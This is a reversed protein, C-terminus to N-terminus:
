HDIKIAGSNIYKGFRSILTKEGGELTEVIFNLVGDKDVSGKKKIWGCEGDSKMCIVNEADGAVPINANHTVFILQREGKIKRINSVLHSSIYANDLQDEPQDIILPTNVGIETFGEMILTLLAVSRQGYSLSILPKFIKKSNKKFSNVNLEIDIKPILNSNSFLEDIFTTSQTKIIKNINKVIDEENINNKESNIAEFSNEKILKLNIQKVIKKYDRNYLYNLLNKFSIKRFSDIHDLTLSTIDLSKFEENLICKKLSQVYEIKEDFNFSIKIKGKLIENLEKINKEYVESIQNRTKKIAKILSYIENHCSNDNFYRSFKSKLLSYNRELEEQQKYYNIENINNNIIFNNFWKNLKLPEEGLSKIKQQEYTEIKTKNLFKRKNYNKVKIEDNTNIIKYVTLYQTTDNYVFGDIYKTHVRKQGTYSDNSHKFEYKLAFLEDNLKLYILVYDAQGLFHLDKEILNNHEINIIYKLLTSKGTGRGGIVCNLDRNLPFLQWLERKEINKLFGGKIALGFIENKLTESNINKNIRLNTELISRKLHKFCPYQMKVSIYDNGIENLSHADSDIAFALRTREKKKNFIKQKHEFRSSGIIDLNPNNINNNWTQNDIEYKNVHPIYNLGDHKKIIKMADALSKDSAIESEGEIGCFELDRKIESWQEIYNSPDLIAILHIGGYISIEVGPIFETLKNKREKKFDGIMKVIKQYGKVTNHDAIIAMNIDSNIIKKILMHYLLDDKIKNDFKSEYTEIMKRELLNNKIGFSKFVNYNFEKYNKEKFKYDFSAPTHIHLDVNYQSSGNDDNTLEIFKKKITEKIRM